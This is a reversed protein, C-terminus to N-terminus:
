HMAFGLAILPILPAAAAYSPPAIRVLLDSAIGLGLVIGIAVYSYYTTIAVGLTPLGREKEAAAHVPERMLPGWAMTFGSVAYSTLAGLRSAVRYVGADAQSVYKSVLVVDLNQMLWFAIVVPVLPSGRKLIERADSPHFALRFSARNAALGFVLGCATGLALGAMAGSLGFGLAVLPIMGALVFVPRALNVVVYATPRRELRLINTVIRWVAGLGGAAAAWVVAAGHRTDGVLYGSLRPAALSVALTTLVTLVFTLVLSTGLAGRKDRAGARDDSGAFDSDADGSSGYVWSFTGQLVALNLFITLAASFVLLVAIRGYLAPRMLHTLAALNALGFVLTLASGAAYIATHRSLRTGLAGIASM